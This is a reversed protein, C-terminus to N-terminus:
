KAMGAMAETRMCKLCLTGTRIEIKAKKDANPHYTVKGCKCKWAVNTLNNESM